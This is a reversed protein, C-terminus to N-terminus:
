TSLSMSLSCKEHYFSKSTCQNGSQVDDFQYALNNSPSATLIMRIGAQHLSSGNCGNLEIVSLDRKWTRHNSPLSSQQLKIGELALIAAAKEYM